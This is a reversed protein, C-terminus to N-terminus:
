FDILVVEEVVGRPLYGVVAMVAAALFVIEWECPGVL